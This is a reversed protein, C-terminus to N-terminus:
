PEFPLENGNMREIAAPEDKVAPAVVLVIYVMWVILGIHLVDNETFWIGRAWLTESIGLVYYLFYAAITVILWGWTGLLALDMRERSQRYRRGNLILFIIVNPAAIVLLLEFSILFKVPLLSGILVLLLYLGFSGWAFRILRKRWKGTTCSYAEAIM